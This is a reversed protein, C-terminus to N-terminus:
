YSKVASRVIADTLEATHPLGVALTVIAAIDEPQLLLQPSYPRGEKAFQREILPTNTRGPFINLVRIGRENLEQRWSDALVRAAHQMSAYAGAGVGSERSLGASSNVFILYGGTRELPALLRQTLVFRARVNSRYISDLEAVSATALPGSTYSGACHVLTQVRVTAVSLEVGLKAIADDDLLDVDRGCVSGPFRAELAALKSGNRDIALVKRANQALGCTIARGIGSGAGTVVDVDGKIARPRSASVM